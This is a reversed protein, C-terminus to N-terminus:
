ACTTMQLSTALITRVRFARQLRISAHCADAGLRSWETRSSACACDLSACPVRLVPVVLHVKGLVLQTLSPPQTVSVRVLTTTHSLTAVLFMRGSCREWAVLQHPSQLCAIGRSDEAGLFIATYACPAQQTAEVIYATGACATTIYYTLLSVGLVIEIMWVHSACLCYMSRTSNAWPGPATSHAFDGAFTCVSM